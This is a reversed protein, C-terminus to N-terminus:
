CWFRRGGGQGGRLKGAHLSTEQLNGNITPM